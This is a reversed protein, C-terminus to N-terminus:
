QLLFKTFVMIGRLTQRNQLSATKTPQPRKGIGSWLSPSSWGKGELPTRRRDGGSKSIQPLPDVGEKQDLAPDFLGELKQDGQKNISYYKWGGTGMEKNGNRRSFIDGTIIIFTTIQLFGDSDGGDV